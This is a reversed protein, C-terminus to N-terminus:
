HLLSMNVNKIRTYSLLEDLDNEKGIGSYKYGGFPAGLPRQGRGNVWVYGAELARSVRMAASLDNTWVNATLGLPLENAFAVTQGEDTWRLISVIPGFIEERAIRMEPTVGDFLTPELFYGQNCGAPRGGGTVLRAGEHTGVDVYRRVREYHAQYALPGMDTEELLPDGIRFAEVLARLQEVFADHIDAHVFVRSPSGCSQGQGRRFNMADVTARAVLSVDADPFVILPNKSGLELSVTKVHEAAERLVARGAAVSGTFAIRPIGPHRVIAAGTTPGDGTVVNIVGPPFLGQTLEAFHLASIPTQDAPKVIVANGAAVPAAVAAAAFQIPHNFPIIRAVVGYPERLTYNISGEASEMTSGKLESALGAFYQLFDVGNQVDKRMGSVPIGGDIADLIAFEPAHEGLRRALERLAQARKEWSARSWEQHGEAAAAVALDVDEPGALPFTALVEQTTPDISELTAGSSASIWRGGVFMQYSDRVSSARRTETDITSVSHAM